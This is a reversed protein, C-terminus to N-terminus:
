RFREPQHQRHSSVETYPSYDFVNGYQEYMKVTGCDITIYQEDVVKSSVGSDLYGVKINQPNNATHPTGYIKHLSIIAEMPNSFVKLIQDVFNPSWLWAGLDKVQQTTPNYIAYLAEPSGTPAVLTPTSGTGTDGGDGTKSTTNVPNMVQPLRSTQGENKPDIADKNAPNSTPQTDTGGDPFGIPLYYRDEVTGDPQITGLKLSNDFLEPYQDRLLDIIDDIDMQDTIDQPVTDFQHVGDPLGEQNVKGLAVLKIIDNYLDNFSHGEYGGTQTLTLPDMGNLSWGGGSTSGTAYYTYEGVTQQVGTLTETQGGSTEYYLTFPENSIFMYWATSSGAQHIYSAKVPANSSVISYEFTIGANTFAGKCPVLVFPVTDPLADKDIFITSPIDQKESEYDPTVFFGSKNLYQAMLAFMGQDAYMQGDSDMLVQTQPYDSYDLLWDGITTDAWTEPNIESLNHSDWFDPNINYLGGDLWVGLKLGIATGVVATAIHGLATELTTGAASGTAVKAGASATVGQQTAAFDVPVQVSATRAAAATTNSNVVSAAEIATSEAATAFSSEVNLGAGLASNVTGPYVTNLSNSIVGMSDLSECMEYIEVNTMGQMATNLNQCAVTGAGTQAYANYIAAKLQEVDWLSFYSASAM